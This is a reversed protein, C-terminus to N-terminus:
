GRGVKGELARVEEETAGNRRMHERETQFVPGRSNPSAEPRGTPLSPAVMRDGSAARMTSDVGTVANTAILDREWDMLPRGPATLRATPDVSPQAGIPERVPSFLQAKSRHDEFEAQLKALAARTTALEERLEEIIPAVVFSGGHMLPAEPDVGSRLSGSASNGLHFAPKLQDTM